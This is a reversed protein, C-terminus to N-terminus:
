LFLGMLVDDVYRGDPFKIRNKLRGEIQFGLREYLRIARENTARVNLEIKEVSPETKAWTILHKLLAEGAGKAQYGPHVVISLRTIHAIAELGMPDLLAHGIIKGDSEAVVYKGNTRRSLDEIKKRVDVEAYEHPRPILFGPTAAILKEAATLTVSDAEIADRITIM